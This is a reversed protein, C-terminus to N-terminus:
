ERKQERVLHGCGLKEIGTEGGQFGVLAVSFHCIRFWAGFVNCFATATSLEHAVIYRLVCTSTKVPSVKHREFSPVSTAFEADGSGVVM